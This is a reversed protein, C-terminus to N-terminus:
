LQTSSHPNTSNNTVDPPCTTSHMPRSNCPSCPVPQQRGCVHWRRCNRGRLLAVQTALLQTQLAHFAASDLSSQSHTIPQARLAKGIAIPIRVLVTRWAGAMFCMSLQNAIWGHINKDSMFVAMVVAHVVTPGRFGPGASAFWCTQHMVFVCTDSCRYACINHGRQAPSM